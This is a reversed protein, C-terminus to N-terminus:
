VKGAGGGILRGKSKVADLRGRALSIGPSVWKGCTCKLGQWAYKGVNTGCKQNPCELRGELKGQELESRMWLLAETFIHGCQHRSTSVRPPEMAIPGIAGDVPPTAVERCHPALYASTALSWRCKRCRYEIEADRDTHAEDGFLINDPARGEALSAEVERQYLWRQYMPKITVDAPCGMRHYLELQQVFGSNPEIMPRCLRVTSLASALSTERSLSLLYAIILTASRSKGM